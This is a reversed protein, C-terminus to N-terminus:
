KGIKEVSLPTGEYLSFCYLTENIAIKWAPEVESSDSNPDLFYVLDIDKIDQLIEYGYISQKESNFVLSNDRIYNNLILDSNKEIVEDVSYVKIETDVELAKIYRRINKKILTVQGNVVEIKFANGLKAGSRYVSLEKIRYNFYFTRITDKENKEEEYGSLYMSQISEGFKTAAKIALNLDFIYSNENLKSGTLKEKYEIEGNDSLRLAKEGYGYM